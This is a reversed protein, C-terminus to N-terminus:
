SSPMEVGLPALFEAIGGGQIPQQSAIQGNKVNWKITAEPWVIKKGSAQIVGAGMASLDLDDTFTGEFHGTMYVGNDEEHLDSVVYRFGTFSAALVQGMGIYLQKDMAVNGDHDFSKFDDAFYIAGAEALSAPPNDWSKDLYAKVLDLNSGM